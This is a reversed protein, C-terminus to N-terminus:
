NLTHGRGWSFGANANGDERQDNNRRTKPDPSIYEILEPGGFKVSPVVSSLFYITHGIFISILPDILPGLFRLLPTKGKSQTQEFMGIFYGLTHMFIPFYSKPIQFFGMISVKQGINMPHRCVIYLITHVFIPLPGYVPLYQWIATLIFVIFAWIVGLLALFNKFRDEFMQTELESFYSYIQYLNMLWGIGQAHLVIFPLILEQVKFKSWIEWADFYVPPILNFKNLITTLIIASIYYRTFPPIRFLLEAPSQDM